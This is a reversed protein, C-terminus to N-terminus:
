EEGEFAVEDLSLALSEGGVFFWVRDGRATVSTIIGKKGKQSPRSRGYPQGNYNSTVTVVQGVCLLEIDRELKNIERSTNLVQQKVNAM